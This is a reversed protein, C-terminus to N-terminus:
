FVCVCVCLRMRCWWRMQLVHSVSIYALVLVVFSAGVRRSASCLKSISIDGRRIDQAQGPRSHWKLLPLGRECPACILAPAPALSRQPFQVLKLLLRPPPNVWM